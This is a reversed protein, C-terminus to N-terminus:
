SYLARQLPARLNRVLQLENEVEPETAGVTAMAAHQLADLFNERWHMVTNRDLVEKMLRWRARREDLPMILACHVAWAIEDVDFPNVLLAAKLEQAAGAFRSLVLMGPNEPDQAAVYEKAVLNMGDRLPTVLGIRSARYFGSLLVRSFSKNVYRLPSWDYEAFKGNIAGVATEIDRRLTRYQAVEDRSHPTIQLYSFRGRHEPYETLLNDIAEFRNTIGKTYDLRDVGIILARDGLSEQLRRADRMNAARKALKAFRETDIGIPFTAAQCRRGGAEFSGDASIEAHAIEILSDQFARLAEETQFGILDYATFAQLLVGHRPLTEFLQRPPFPTHLFFGIPNAVGLKRLEAAFPILHYDNVWILDDPEIIPRLMRALNANTRLYGDFAARSYEVLGLRYHLLPWLTGNSYGVYYTEYDTRSLAATVYTINGVQLTQPTTPAEEAVEGNWGFWIGSYHSLTERIAVALGGARARRDTPLAVRNSVVILRALVGGGM